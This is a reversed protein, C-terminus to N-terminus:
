ICNTFLYESTKKRRNIQSSITSYRELEFRKGIGKYLNIISDHVANTLIFYAKKKEIEKLFSALRKQDEWNFVKRNYEIFGNNNHAVTYPPDVFVFDNKEIKDICLSFDQSCLEANKLAFSASLINSHDFVKVAPNHGYPVNFKGGTNVRYIGNFCTKNLHIFRAANYSKNTSSISRLQYYFEENNHFSDLQNILKNPNNKVQTFANILESNLDSLFSKNIPNLYFFVAGGGLFPEHYNNYKKPLFEKLRQTLWNKGGAWKLFPKAKSSIETTTIINEM